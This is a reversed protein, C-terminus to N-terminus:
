NFEQNFVYTFLVFVPVNEIIQGDNTVYSKLRLQIIKLMGWM